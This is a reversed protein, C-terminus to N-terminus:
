LWLEGLLCLVGLGVVLKTVGAAGDAAERAAKEALYERAAEPGALEALAQAHIDDQLDGTDRNGWRRARDRERAAQMDARYRARRSRREARRDRRVGRRDVGVSRVGGSPEDDFEGSSEGFGPTANLFSYPSRM